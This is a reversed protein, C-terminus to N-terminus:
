QCDNQINVLKHERGRGCGDHRPGHSLPALERGVQHVGDDDCPQDVGGHGVPGPIGSAPEVVRSVVQVKSPRPHNMQEPSGARQHSAEENSRPQVPKGLFALHGVNRSM